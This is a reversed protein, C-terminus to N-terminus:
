HVINSGHNWERWNRTGSRWSTVRKCLYGTRSRSICIFNWSWLSLISSVIRSGKFAMWFASSHSCLITFGSISYANELAMDLQVCIQMHIIYLYSLKSWNCWSSSGWQSDLAPLERQLHRAKRMSNVNARHMVISEEDTWLTEGGKSCRCWDLM